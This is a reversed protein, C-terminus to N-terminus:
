FDEELVTISLESFLHLHSRQSGITVFTTVILATESSLYLGLNEKDGQLRIETTRSSVEQQILLLVISWIVYIGPMDIGGVTFTIIGVWIVHKPFKPNRLPWSILIYWLM